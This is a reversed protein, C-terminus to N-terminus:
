VWKEELGLDDSWEGDSYDSWEDDSSDSWDEEKNRTAEAFEYQMKHDLGMALDDEDEASRQPCGDAVTFTSDYFCDPLGQGSFRKALALLMSKRLYPGPLGWLYGRAKVYDLWEVNGVRQQQLFTMVYRLFLYRRAPRNPTLFKLAKGDM